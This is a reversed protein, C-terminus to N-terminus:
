AAAGYRRLSYIRSFLLIVFVAVVMLVITLAAGLPWNVRTEFTQRILEASMPSKGGGLVKPELFVGVSLLFVLVAGTWIGPRCLPLTVEWFARWKSAGADYAALILSRDISEISLYITFITFAILNYVMGLLTAWDTYLFGIMAPPFGIKELLFNAAGKQDLFLVWGFTKLTVDTLFAFTILVKVHGSLAQLRTALAYAVPLSIVICLAVCLASMWLTHWLVTWYHPKSFIETWVKLSWAWQLMFSRTEQFTLLVTMVLPALFFLSQLAVSPLAKAWLESQAWRRPEGEGIM